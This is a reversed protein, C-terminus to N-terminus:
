CALRTMSGFSAAASNAAKQVRLGLGQGSISIVGGAVRLGGTRGRTGVNAGIQGAIADIAVTLQDFFSSFDALKPAVVEDGEQQAAAQGELM